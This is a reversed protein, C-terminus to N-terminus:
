AVAAEDWSALRLLTSAPVGRAAVVCLRGHRLWTVVTHGNEHLVTYETNGRWAVKGGSPRLPAAGAVIAYGVRQGSANGYYVTTIARGGLTDSRAGTARWGFREEWYPFPVGDVAVNLQAGRSTSEHPAPLTATGLALASASPLTLAHGGGSSGLAVVLVAIAAAAVAGVGALRGLLVAGGRPRPRSDQRPRRARGQVLADVERHLSEPAPADISRIFDVLESETEPRPVTM